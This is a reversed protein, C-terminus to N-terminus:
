AAPKQNSNYKQMYLIVFKHESGTLPDESKEENKRKNYDHDKTVTFVFPKM